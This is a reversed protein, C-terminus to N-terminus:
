TFWPHRIVNQIRLREEPIYKLMKELLNELLGVEEELLRVWPKGIMPGEHESPPDDREGVELLKARISSRYAQLLM